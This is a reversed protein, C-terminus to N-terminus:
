HNLKWKFKCESHTRTVVPRRSLRVEDVGYCIYDLTSRIDWEILHGGRSGVIIQNQNSPNWRVEKLESNVEPLKQIASGVRIDMLNVEGDACVTFIIFYDVCLWYM